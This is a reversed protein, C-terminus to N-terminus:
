EKRKNGEEGPNEVKKIHFIISGKFSEFFFIEDVETIGSLTNIKTQRRQHLSTTVGDLCQKLNISNTETVGAFDLYELYM